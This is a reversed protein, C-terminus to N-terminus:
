VNHQAINLYIHPYKVEIATALANKMRNLETRNCVSNEVPYIFCKHNHSQDQNARKGYNNLRM